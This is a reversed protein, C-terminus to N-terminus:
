ATPDPAPILDLEDGLRRRGLTLDYQAQLALWLDPGNGCLKALRLAMEATIGSRGANIRHLTLRSM